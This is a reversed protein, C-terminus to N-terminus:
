EAPEISLGIRELCDDLIDPPAKEKFEARRAMLDLSKVQECLISGTTQTRQDLVVHLPFSRVTNTIPCVMALNCVKNFYDNSVVLAPRRGAQEHGTQPAFDLLVIDGQRADYARM